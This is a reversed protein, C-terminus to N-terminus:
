DSDPASSVWEPASSFSVTTVIARASVPFGGIHYVTSFHMSSPVSSRKRSPLNFLGLSLPPFVFFVDVVVSCFFFSTTLFALLCDFFGVSFVLLPVSDLGSVCGTLLLILRLAALSSAAMRLAWFSSPSSLSPPKKSIQNDEAGYQIPITHIFIDYIAHAYNLLKPNLM